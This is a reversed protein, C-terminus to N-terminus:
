KINNFEFDFIDIEQKALQLLSSQNNIIYQKILALDEDNLQTSEKKGILKPEDTITISLSGSYDPLDNKNRQVKLFFCHEKKNYWQGIDDIFLNVPLGSRYKRLCFFDECNQKRFINIM